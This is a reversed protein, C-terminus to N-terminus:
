MHERVFEFVGPGYKLRVDERFEKDNPDAAKMAAVDAPKERLLGTLLPGPAPYQRERFGKYAGGGPGEQAGKINKNHQEIALRDAKDQLLMLRRLSRADMDQSGAIGKLFDIDANSTQGKLVQQLKLAQADRLKFFVDTDGAREDTYGLAKAALKRAALMKPAM